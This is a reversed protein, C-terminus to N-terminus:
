KLVLKNIFSNSNILQHGEIMEDVSISVTKNLRGMDDYNLDTIMGVSSLGQGVVLIMAVFNSQCKGCTIHILSASDNKAFVKAKEIPYNASCIPCRNILKFAEQWGDSSPKPILM